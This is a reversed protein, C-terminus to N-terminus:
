EKRLAAEAEARTLFVTKGLDAKDFTFWCTADGFDGFCEFAIEKVEYPMLPNGFPGIAVEAWVMDGVKCPLETLRGDAKAKALEMAEELTLPQPNEREAKERLATAGARLAEQEENTLLLFCEELLEDIINAFTNMAQETNM